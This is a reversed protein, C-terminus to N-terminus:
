ILVDRVLQGAPTREQLHYTTGPPVRVYMAYCRQARIQRADWAAAVDQSMQGQTCGVRRVLYFINPM